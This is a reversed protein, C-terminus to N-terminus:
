GSASARAGCPRPTSSGGPSGPGSPVLTSWGSGPRPSSRWRRARGRATRELRLPSAPDLLDLGNASREVGFAAALNAPGLRSGPMRCGRWGPRPPRPTRGTPRRYGIARAVRAARMADSGELPVVSRLLVAAPYGAPGTVVNACAHGYVLYVYAVGPPGFMVRNRPTPGMRAHSARDDQGVYAEVEVIRGSRRAGGARDPDRVLLAGLLARAADLTDGALLDRPFPRAPIAPRPPPKGGAGGTVRDRLDGPHGRPGPVAGPRPLEPDGDRPPDQRHRLRQDGDLPEGAAPGRGCRPRLVPQLFFQDLIITVFMLLLFAQVVGLIGGLVEDVVPYKAFIEVKRYSGQVVLAFAVVGAVFLMLFGLMSAYQAPFQTWHEALFSGVPVSLQAALFFSFTMTAIGVLRRIAGQAYGLVFGGLLGLIILVDVINLTGLFGSINM